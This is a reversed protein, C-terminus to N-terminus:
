TEKIGIGAIILYGHGIFVLKFGSKDYLLGVKEILDHGEAELVNARCVLAQHISYKLWEEVSRHLNVNIIDDDLGGVGLLV